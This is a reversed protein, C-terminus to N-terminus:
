LLFFIKKELRKQKQNDVEQQENFVYIILTKKTLILDRINGSTVQPFSPVNEKIIFEELKDSSYLYFGENTIAFIQSKADSKYKSFYREHISSDNTAYFYAQSLYRNVIDKYENLLPDDEDSTTVLLFFVENEQRIENFKEISPIWRIAPGNVRKLFQLVASKSRENEYSFIQSDRIFKITPYGHIDYHNAVDGYVTADVRVIRLNKYEDVTTSLDSVEKAIEEYVPEFHRCHGCRLHIYFKALSEIRSLFRVM